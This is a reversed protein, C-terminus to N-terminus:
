EKIKMLKETCGEYCNNPNPTLLLKNEMFTFDLNYNIKSNGCDYEVHILNSNIITYRGSVDCSFKSSKIVGNSYFTYTSGNEITHWLLPSGGDSSLIEIVKWTGVISNNDTKNEDNQSCSNFSLIISFILILNKM